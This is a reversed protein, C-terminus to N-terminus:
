PKPSDRKFDNRKKTSQSGHFIGIVDCCGNVIDIGGGMEPMGICGDDSINQGTIMPQRSMPREKERARVLMAVLDGFGGVLAADRRFSVCVPDAALETFKPRLKGDRVIEEDPCRIGPV